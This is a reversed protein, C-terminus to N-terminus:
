VLLFVLYVYNIFTKMSTAELCIRSYWLKIFLLPGASLVSKIKDVRSSFGTEPSFTGTYLVKPYPLLSCLNIMITSNNNYCVTRLPHTHIRPFHSGDQFGPPGRGGPPPFPPCNTDCLPPPYVHRSAGLSLLRAWWLVLDHKHVSHTDNHMTYYNDCWFGM